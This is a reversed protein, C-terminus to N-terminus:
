KGTTNTRGCGCSEAVLLNYREIGDNCKKRRCVPLPKIRPDTVPSDLEIAALDKYLHGDQVAEMYGRHIFVSKNPDVQICTDGPAHLGCQASGFCCTISRAKDVCHAATIIRTHSIFTGGCLNLFKVNDSYVKVFARKYGEYTANEGGIIGLRPKERESKVQTVFNLVILCACINLHWM